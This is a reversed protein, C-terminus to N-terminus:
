SEHCSDYMLNALLWIRMWVIDAWDSGVHLVSDFRWVHMTVWCYVVSEGVGKPVSCVPPTGRRRCWCLATGSTEGGVSSRNPNAASQDDPRRHRCICKRNPPALWIEVPFRSPRISVSFWWSVFRWTEVMFPWTKRSAYQITKRRAYTIIIIDFGFM